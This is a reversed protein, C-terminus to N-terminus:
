MALDDAKFGLDKLIQANLVYVTPGASTRAYVSKGAAASISITTTKGSKDTLTVEIKPRALRALVAASPADYIQTARANQLPDFVKWSQVSKGKDAALAVISWQGNKGQSCQITGNANRIKMAVVNSSDFHLIAKDRLDFFNKNLSDYLSSDITFIMPRATDRAYYGGAAKKGVVLHFQQGNKKSVALTISPHTLGYKNLDDPKESVVGTFMSTSLSSVLSDMADSDAPAKKPETIEWNSGEKAIAVTGSADDLKLGIIDAGDLDLISRDRLQSLPQESENLLSLPLLGINKSNDVLAYVVIGSFDTDGLRITHKAGSKSQFEITVAPPELGYTSLSGTPPFSRRIKAGSLDNVIGSVKAQDARTSIPLTIRWTKGHKAFVSTGSKSVLTLGTIDGAKVSFAPKWSAEGTRITPKHKRDHFYAFAGLAIAVAVVILTSKKM